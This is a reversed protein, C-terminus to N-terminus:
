PQKYSISLICHASGCVYRLVQEGCVAEAPQEREREREEFEGNNVSNKLVQMKYQRTVGNKATEGKEKCYEITQSNKVKLPSCFFCISLGM